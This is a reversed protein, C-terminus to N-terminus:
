INTICAQFSMSLTCLLNASSHCRATDSPLRRKKFGSLNVAQSSVFMAPHFYLRRCFVSLCIFNSSLVLLSSFNTLYLLIACLGEPLRCCPICLTFLHPPGITYSYSIMSDRARVEFNSSWRLINNRAMLFKRHQIQRGNGPKVLLIRTIDGAFSVNTQVHWHPLRKWVYIPNYEMFLINTVGAGEVFSLKQGDVCNLRRIPDLKIDKKNNVNVHQCKRAQILPRQLMRTRWVARGAAVTQM